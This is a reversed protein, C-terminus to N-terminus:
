IRLQKRNRGAYVHEAWGAQFGNKREYAKLEELTKCHAVQQRRSLTLAKAMAADVKKLEGEVVELQGRPNERKPPAQAGCHPCLKAPKFFRLCKGCHLVKCTAGDGPKKKEGELSWYREEDPMGHRMINGAHDLIVVRLKGAVVRLGRGVQQLFLGLSKTPRLLIVCAIAPIDTGESIIDCTCVVQIEGTGLGALIDKRRDTDTEGDVAQATYGAARFQAAVHEAHPVSCCFVVAPEGPCLKTYYAVANGTIQPKDVREELEAGNYDGSKARLGTLDLAEAPAYVEPRTLWGMEILEGIQPGIEICDYVGGAEVGMGRGDTRIPTATVGLKLASPFANYVKRYTGALSHHCEDTVILVPTTRMRDLRKGLTQVMCVQVGASYDPTFKPHIIGHPQGISTLAKSIQKLIEERHCLIWVPNGKAAAGAVVFCFIVTKGGGTPLVIIPAKFGAAFAQRTRSVLDEQYERLELM